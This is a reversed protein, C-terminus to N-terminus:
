RVHEEFTELARHRSTARVWALPEGMQKRYSLFAWSRAQRYPIWFLAVAALFAFGATILRLSASAQVGQDLWALGSVVLGGVLVIATLAYVIATGFLGHRLLWPLTLFMATLSSGEAPVARLTTGKRFIAWLQGHSDVDLAIAEDFDANDFTDANDAITTSSPSLSQEPLPSEIDFDLTQESRVRARTHDAPSPVSDVLPRESDDPTQAPTYAGTTDSTVDTNTRHAMPIDTGDEVHWDDAPSASSKIAAEAKLHGATDEIPGDGAGTTDVDRHQRKSDHDVTTTADRIQQGADVGATDDIDVWEGAVTDPHDITTSVEGQRDNPRIDEGNDAQVPSFSGEDVLAIPQTSDTSNETDDVATDSTHGSPALAPEDPTTTGVVKQKEIRTREQLMEEVRLNTYLYRAEDHDDNALACARAWLHPRRRNTDLEETAEQYLEEDIM